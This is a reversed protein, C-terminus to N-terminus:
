FTATLRGFVSRGAKQVGFWDYAHADTLNQVELTAAVSWPAARWAVTAALGHLLQDPVRQKVDPRGVSEWGRFFGHVYRTTWHVRVEVGRPLPEAVRLTAEGTATIWPRNPLRDGRYTSFPGEDSTNRADLWTATGALSVWDRPSTWRLAGEAGVTRARYVNQWQFVTDTGLLAVLHDAARLLGGARADFTGITTSTPLLELGANVNHSVEPELDLNAAILVADGFVEDPEPLRTAYEYSAKLLLGGVLTARLGAGGGFRLLRRDKERWAGGVVPEELDAAYGYAKGFATLEARDHALHGTWGLGSVVTVLRRDATLPDREGTDARTHDEGTRRTWAPTIALSLAHGPAVEVDVDARGTWAQQRAVQDIPHGEIEGPTARDRIPRGFWDYVRDALDVFTTRRWGHAALLEVRVPGRTLAWRGTTGVATVGYRAEGYPVTMVVNHPIEKALDSASGRVELVDAWRRDRVGLVLGGGGARYGDHTRRVTAPALRGTADAVEVDIPWDNRSTDFFGLARAYAGSPVHLHQVSAALRHTDWSGSQWALSGHTGARPPATVLDVAGGLADAGYRIPVVGRYLDVREVLDVPVSAPDVGLGALAWPVGDVFLRVQQGTLGDLSLSTTSGLGGSRRVAVGEVRALVEGLDASEERATTTEVTTVAEATRRRRTSAAEDVVEIAIAGEDEPAPEQARAAGVLVTAGVLVGV